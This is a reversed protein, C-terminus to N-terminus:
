ADSPERVSAGPVLLAEIARELSVAGARQSRYDEEIRV